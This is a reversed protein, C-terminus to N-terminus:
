LKSNIIRPVVRSVERIGFVHDLDDRGKKKDKLVGNGQIVGQEDQTLKLQKTLGQHIEDADDQEYAERDCVQHSRVTATQATDDGYLLGQISGKFSGRFTAM